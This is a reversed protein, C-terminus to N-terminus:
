VTRELAGSIYIELMKRTKEKLNYNGDHLAWDFIVGRAILFLEHEIEQPTNKKNCIGSNQATIIIAELVSHMGQKRSIFLSNEPIYMKRTLEVGNREAMDVYEEFFVQIQQAFPLPELRSAIETEFYHDASRYLEMFLDLKSKYYHYFTGVSVDASKAIRTVNVGDLGYKQILKIGVQFIKNKTALAQRDRSTLVKEKKDM